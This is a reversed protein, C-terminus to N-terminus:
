ASGFIRCSNLRDGCCIPRAPDAANAPMPIPEQHQPHTASRQPRRTTNAVVTSVKETKVPMAPRAIDSPTSTPARKRVPNPSPPMTGISWASTVSYAGARM